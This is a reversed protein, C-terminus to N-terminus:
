LFFYFIEFGVLMTHIFVIYVKRNEGKKGNIDIVKQINSM